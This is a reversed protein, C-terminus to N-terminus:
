RHYLKRQLVKYFDNEGWKVLRVNQNSKEVVISDGTQVPIEEGSDASLVPGGDLDMKQVCLCITDTVGTVVSPSALNHACVPTIIMVPASPQAVPGGASLNYATSGTPTSIIIGDGSLQMAEVGDCKVALHAIRAV